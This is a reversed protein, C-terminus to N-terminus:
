EMSTKLFFHVTNIHFNFTLIYKIKLFLVFYGTLISIDVKNSVFIENICFQAFFPKNETKLDEKSTIINITM